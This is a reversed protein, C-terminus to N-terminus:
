VMLHPTCEFSCILRGGGVDMGGVATGHLTISFAWLLSDRSMNQLMHWPPLMYVTTASQWQFNQLLTNTHSRTCLLQADRLYCVDIKRSNGNKEGTKQSSLHQEVGGSISILRLLCSRQGNSPFMRQRHSDM